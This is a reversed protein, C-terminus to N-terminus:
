ACAGKNWQGTGGRQRAITTCRDKTVNPVQEDDKDEFTITCCGKDAAKKAKKAKAKKATKKAKAKAAKAKKMTGETQLPTISGEARKFQLAKFFCRPM